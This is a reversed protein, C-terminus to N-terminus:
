RTVSSMHARASPVGISITVATKNKRDLHGFVHAYKDVMFLKHLDQM